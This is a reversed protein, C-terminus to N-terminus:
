FLYIQTSARNRIEEEPEIHNGAQLGLDTRNRVTELCYKMGSRAELPGSRGGVARSTSSGRGGAAAAAAEPAAPM